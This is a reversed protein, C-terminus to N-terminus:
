QRKPIIKRAVKKALSLLRLIKSRVPILLRWVFVFLKLLINDCSIIHGKRKVRTVVAQLQEPLLPGEVWQQADGIMYFCDKCVKLVRHLVYVDNVRKILVIDGKKIQAFCAKSLEVSDRGEKLFPYMSMGAVTIWARGGQEIIENTLSFLEAAKILKLESNIGPV